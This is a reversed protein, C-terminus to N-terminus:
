GRGAPRRSSKRRVAIPRAQGPRWHRGSWHTTWLNAALENKGAIFLEEDAADSVPWESWCCVTTDIVVNGGYRSVESSDRSHSRIRHACVGHGRSPEEIDGVIMSQSHHDAEAPLLVDGEEVLTLASLRDLVLYTFADPLARPMWCKQCIHNAVLNRRWDHPPISRIADLSKEAAEVVCYLLLIRACEDAVDIVRRRFIEARPAVKDAEVHKEFRLGREVRVEAAQVIKRTVPREDEGFYSEVANSIALVRLRRRKRPLYPRREGGSAGAHECERPCVFPM